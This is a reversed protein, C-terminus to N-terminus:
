QQMLIKLIEDGYKETKVPGFGSVKLLEDKTKPNKAILEKLQADNFIYYPKINEQKSQTRRFNKLQEIRHDPAQNLNSVETTNITRTAQINNAETTIAINEKMKSNELESLIKQYKKSYDSRNQQNNELFFQALKRMEKESKLTDKSNQADDERLFHILQDARIVQKKVEKKAYKSNLYTKPNALVVLSKYNFDFNREVLSKTIINSRSNKRLEKIVQMHRQNQTIPSYLGEKIKKGFLEYTRIFNGSNDIEINGILNKCEIVYTKGRTIVIYDIQASLGNFELYIDHLIFMDMGSNKLEFAINQEGSQGYHALKIQKEIKQKLAGDAKPLLENLSTIFQESDSTEKLFVPGIKQKFISMKGECKM